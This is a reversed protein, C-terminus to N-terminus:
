GDIRKFSRRNSLSRERRNRRRAFPDLLPMLRPIADWQLWLLAPQVLQNRMSPPLLKRLRLAPPANAPAAGKSAEHVGWLTLYDSQEPPTKFVSTVATRKAQVMLMSPRKDVLTVRQKVVRPDAVDYRPGYALSVQARGRFRHVIDGEENCILVRQAIYGNQQSLASYFLEASFQYLGHGFYNNAPLVLILHGGVRVMEMYSKLAVPVNFVHELTGCDFVVDFREHLEPPIPENLDHIVSAGQYDSADIAEVECAGLLKFLPDAWVQWGLQRRFESKSQRPRLGHKRLM